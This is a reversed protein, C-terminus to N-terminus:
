IARQNLQGSDEAWATQPPEQLTPMAASQRAHLSGRKAGPDCLTTSWVLAPTWYTSATPQKAKAARQQQLWLAHLLM